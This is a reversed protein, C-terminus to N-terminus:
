WGASGPKGHGSRRGAARARRGAPPWRSPRARRRAPGPRRRRGRAGVGAVQCDGLAAAEGVVDAFREFLGAQGVDPSHADVDRAARVAAPLVVYGVDPEVPGLPPRVAPWSRAVLEQEAPVHALGLDLEALPGHPQRGLRTGLRRHPYHAAKGFLPLSALVEGTPQVRRHRWPPLQRARRGRRNASARPVARSNCLSRRSRAKRPRPRRPRTRRHMLAATAPFPLTTVKSSTGLVSSRVSSASTSRLAFNSLADAPSM